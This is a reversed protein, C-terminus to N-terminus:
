NLRTAKVTVNKDNSTAGTSTIRMKLGTIQNGSVGYAAFYVSIGGQNHASTLAAVEPGTHAGNTNMTHFITSAVIDWPASGAGTWSVAILYIGMNTLTNVPIIINQASWPANVTATHVEKIRTFRIDGAIDLNTTPDKMIGVYGDAKTVVIPKRSSHGSSNDILEFDGSADQIQMAWQDDDANEMAFGVTGSTGGGATTTVKLKCVGTSHFHPYQNGSAYVDLMASPSVSGIGVKGDRLLTM